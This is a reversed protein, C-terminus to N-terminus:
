RGSDIARAALRDIFRPFVLRVFRGLKGRMSTIRLRERRQTARAILEACREASMIKAEQMPSDGLVTGDGSLARKHISSVVFDPAVITVTVGSGELEIRLAEFFGIVAHKSACYGSRCPVGTIGALSAVVAIRGHSQVLAPLAAHTCYLAGFYNIDMVRRFVNLDTTESFRAWMTAGANNFLTDLRGFRELTQNILATCQSPETLDAPLCLTAVDHEELEVALSQLRELSRATLVLADYTSEHALQHALARGIGESAGTILAVNAPANQM